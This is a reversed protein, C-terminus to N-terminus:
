IQIRGILYMQFFALILAFLLFQTTGPILNNAQLEGDIFCRVVVEDMGGGCEVLRGGGDVFINLTNEVDFAYALRTNTGDLVRAVRVERFGMHITVDYRRASGQWCERQTSYALVGGMSESRSFETDLCDSLEGNLPVFYNAAIQLVIGNAVLLFVGICFKAIKNFV